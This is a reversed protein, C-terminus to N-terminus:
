KPNRSLSVVSPALTDCLAASGYASNGLPATRTLEEKLSAALLTRGDKGRWVSTRWAFGDVVADVPWITFTFAVM